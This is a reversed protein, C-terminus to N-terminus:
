PKELTGETFKTEVTCILGFRKFIHESKTVYIIKILTDTHNFSELKLHILQFCKFKKKKDYHM